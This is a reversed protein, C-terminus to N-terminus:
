NKKRNLFILRHGSTELEGDLPPVTITVYVPPPAPCCKRVKSVFDPMFGGGTIGQLRQGKPNDSCNKNFNNACVM